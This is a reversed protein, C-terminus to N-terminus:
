PNVSTFFVTQRLNQGGLILGSNTFSHLNIACGIHYIYEFFNNPILVKDQLTPDIPNRESHGQLARLCLIEQGSQKRRRKGHRDQDKLVRELEEGVESAVACLMDGEETEFTVKRMTEEFIEYEEALTDLAQM